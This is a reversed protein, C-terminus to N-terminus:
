NNKGGVGSESDSDDSFDEDAPIFEDGSDLNNEDSDEVDDDLDSGDEMILELAQALEIRLHRSSSAM